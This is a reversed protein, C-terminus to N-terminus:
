HDGVFFDMNEYVFGEELKGLKFELNQLTSLDLPIFIKGAESNVEYPKWRNYYIATYKDVWKIFGSGREEEGEVVEAISYFIGSSTRLFLGFPYVKKELLDIVETANIDFSVMLDGFGEVIGHVEGGTVKKSKIFENSSPTRIPYYIRNEQFKTSDNPNTYPYDFTVEVEGQEQAHIFAIRRWWEENRSSPSGFRTIKGFRELADLFSSAEKVSERITLNEYPKFWKEYEM